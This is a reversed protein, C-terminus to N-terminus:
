KKGNGDLHMYTICKGHVCVCVCVCVCTPRCIKFLQCKKLM